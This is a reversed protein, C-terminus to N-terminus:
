EAATGPGLDAPMQGLHLRALFFHCLPGISFAFV